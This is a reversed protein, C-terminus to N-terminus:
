FGQGNLQTQAVQKVNKSGADQENAIRASAGTPSKLKMLRTVM